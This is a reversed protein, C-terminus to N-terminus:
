TLKNEEEQQASANDIVENMLLPVDNKLTVTIQEM